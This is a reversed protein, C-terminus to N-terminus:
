ANAPNNLAIDVVFEKNKGTPTIRAQVNLVNTELYNQAPDIFFRLGSVESRTVMFDTANQCLSEYYAVVDPLLRGTNADVQQPANLKPVLVAYMLRIVKHIVRNNEINSYDSTASTATCSDSFYCGAVTPYTRAFIYGKTNIAEAQGITVNKMLVGNSLAPAIYRSESESELNNPEVWSIPANVASVAAVGLATGVTAHYQFAADKNAINKCQAIVVSAYPRTLAKLDALAGIGSLDILRRGEIFFSVPTKRVLMEAAIAQANALATLVTQDIGNTLDVAPQTGAVATVGNEFDFDTDGSSGGVTRTLTLIVGNYTAGRGAPASFTLIDGAIGIGSGTYNSNSLIAARLGAAKQNATDGAQVVYTGVTTTGGDVIKATISGGATVTNFFNATTVATAKVEAVAGSVPPVHAVGFLRIRGNAYAQLTHAPGTDSTDTLTILTASAQAMVYIYLEGSIGRERFKRFFEDVQHWILTRNALDYAETVGLSELSKIDTILYPTNLQLGGSVAVGSAILASVGDASAAQLGLAGDGIVFSVNSLM